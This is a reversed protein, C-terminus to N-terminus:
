SSLNFLISRNRHLARWCTWAQISPFENTSVADLVDNTNIGMKNFIIALENVFAINLDRKHIKLLRTAEAARISPAMHTGATIISKYLSNVKEAASLSSGSTAKKIKTVTHNKDGPNIREPSYGCFLRYEFNVWISEIIPICDDETAGPYVTSEYIILDNKKIIGVALESASILPGLDPLKNNDIPTPVTIIYINCDKIESVNNTAFFNNEKIAQNLDSEKIELKIM